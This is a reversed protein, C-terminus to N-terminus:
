LEVIIIVRQVINIKRLKYIIVSNPLKSDFLLHINSSLLTVM